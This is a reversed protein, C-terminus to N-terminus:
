VCCNTGHQGGARTLCGRGSLFGMFVLYWGAYTSSPAVSPNVSLLLIVTEFFENVRYVVACLALTLMRIHECPLLVLGISLLKFPCNVGFDLICVEELVVEKCSFYM